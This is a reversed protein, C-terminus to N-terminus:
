YAIHQNVVEARENSQAHYVASLKLKVRLIQCSKNWLAPVFQRGCDSIITMPAETDTSTSLLIM